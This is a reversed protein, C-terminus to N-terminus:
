RLKQTDGFIQNKIDNRWFYKQNDFKIISIGANRKRRSAMLLIFCATSKAFPKQMPTQLQM